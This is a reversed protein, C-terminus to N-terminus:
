MEGNRDTAYGQRGFVREFEQVALEEWNESLGGRPPLLWRLFRGVARQRLHRLWRMPDAGYRGNDPM